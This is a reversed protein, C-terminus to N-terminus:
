TDADHLSGQPGTAVTLDVLDFVRMWGPLTAACTLPRGTEVRRERLWVTCGPDALEVRWGSSGDAHQEASVAVLRLADVGTAGTAAIAHHQAAQVAPPLSSRGRVWLPDLRGAAYDRLVAPGDSPDLGGLVFGHPLLVLAPAFRCGGIHSSEWVHEPDAAAMTVALPRGRVACCTDHRGHTCVLALPGPYPEGPAHVAAVLESEDVFTGTRISERGPRSDVRFWRRVAGPVPPGDTPAPGASRATRGPRRILVVRGNEATAWASIAAVAAPHIGSQTLPIRGWPGPHEILFWGDAPPASGERPDHAADAVFSCRPWPVASTM